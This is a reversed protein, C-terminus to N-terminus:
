SVAYSYHLIQNKCYFSIQQIAILIKNNYINFEIYKSYFFKLMMTNKMLIEYM